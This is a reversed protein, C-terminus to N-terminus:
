KFPHKFVVKGHGQQDNEVMLLIDIAEEATVDLVNVSPLRFRDGYNTIAWSVAKWARWHDNPRASISIPHPAGPPHIRFDNNTTAVPFQFRRNKRLVVSALSALDDVCRLLLESSDGQGQTGAADFAYTIPGNGLTTVAESIDRTVTSSTYDFLHTAGLGKLTEHRPRSATVFINQFGSARAFQIACLGVSSSGGWILIPRDIVAPETPLPAKFLNYMTDAATMAVVTLASAHSEPLNSPVRFAMDTPVSVIDQHAGYKSPRGLSSPTYGAVIEGKQFDSGSPVQVIAGAFDYGVVTSRIGLQTTHRVDAPNVGSFHVKVLLENASPSHNPIDERVIFNGKRDAYLAKRSSVSM